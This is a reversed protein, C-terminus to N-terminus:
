GRGGELMGGKLTGRFDAVVTGLTSGPKACDDSRGFEFRYNNNYEAGHDDHPNVRLTRPDFSFKTWNAGAHFYGPFLREHVM